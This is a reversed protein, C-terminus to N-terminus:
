IILSRRRSVALGESTGQGARGTELGGSHSQSRNQMPVPTLFRM